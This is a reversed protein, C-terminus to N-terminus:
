EQVYVCEGDLFTKLVVPKEAGPDLLDADVVVFDARMGRDLRGVFDSVNLAEAARWTVAAIAEQRTLREPPVHKRGSTAAVVSALPDLPAVLPWDSGFSVAVGAEVMSRFAYSRGVGAREEGLKELMAGVDDAIHLPNVVAHAGLSAMRDLAQLGSTHQAHEIRDGGGGGGGGGGSELGSLLSITEDVALDGIAHMAVQLGARKAAGIRSALAERDEHIRLGVNGESGLYPDTMLATESGLSGDYFEKVTGWFLRLGPHHTEPRRAVFDALEAWLDLPVCTKVRVGLAGSDAMRLLVDEFESWCEEKPLSFIPTGMDGVTTVGNSLAFSAAAMVAEEKQQMTQPPMARRALTIAADKLIGTPENGPGRAIEGGQTDPTGAGIGALSLALSNALATHGDARSILVPNQATVGDIWDRGPMAGGALKREDFGYGVIWEGPQKSAGASAVMGVFEERTTAGSLDLMKLFSGGMIVHAHADILGPLVFNGELSREEVSDPGGSWRSRVAEADGVDLIVGNEVVM